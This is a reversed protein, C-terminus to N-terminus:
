EVVVARSCAAVHIPSVCCSMLVAHEGVSWKRESGCKLCNRVYKIQECFVLSLQVCALQRPVGESMCLVYVFRCM